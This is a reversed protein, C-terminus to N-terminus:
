KRVQFKKVINQNDDSLIRLLYIGNLLEAGNIKFETTEAPVIGSIAIRGDIAIIDFAADQTFAKVLQIKIESTVPSPSIYIENIQGFVAKRIPSYEFQGDFDVQKLRYYNVGVLPNKDIFQYHNVTSSNGHGDVSGIEEFDIGNISREIVFLDNNRETATTFSLVTLNSEVSVAFALLRVPVSIPSCSGSGLDIISNSTTWNSANTIDGSNYLCNDVDGLSVSSGAPLSGTGGTRVAFCINSATVSGNTTSPAVNLIYLEEGDNTLAPTGSLTGCTATTGALLITSGAEVGGTPATWTEENENLDAFDENASNWENDTLHYVTGAPIDETALLKIQDPNDANYGIIQLGTCQAALNSVFLVTVAFLTLFKM